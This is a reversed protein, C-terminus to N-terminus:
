GSARLSVYALKPEFRRATGTMSGICGFLVCMWLPLLLDFPEAVALGRVVTFVLLGSLLLRLPARPLRRSVRWLSGYMGVVLLMGGVGYSYFQQLLENEAHRAEFRDPGFPPIVKWMSDFGHGIWPRATIETTVYAWIATRGTLTEAQNGARTYVDYYAAFLSSFLLLLVSTALVLKLKRARPMSRDRVMTFLQCLALAILTSKSLSRLLTFSLLVLAIRYGRGRLRRLYQAMLIALACLNGIQNTNLFDENGLRLDAQAPMLWAAVAIACAALIYGRMVSSCTAHSDGTRLLLSILLVDGMLGSWYAVSNPLSATLSWCLSSGAVLLYVLAWRIPAPRLFDRLSVATDGLRSFAVLALLAAELVLVAAAGTRPEAGLLQVCLLVLAARAGFFFGILTALGVKNPVALSGSAAPNTVERM